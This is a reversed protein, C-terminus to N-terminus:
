LGKTGPELGPPGVMYILAKANNKASLSKEKLEIYVSHLCYFNYKLWQISKLLFLAIVFLIYDILNQVPCLDSRDRVLTSMHFLYHIYKSLM